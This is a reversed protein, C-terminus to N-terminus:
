NMYVLKLHQSQHAPWRRLQWICKNVSLHMRCYNCYHKSFIDFYAFLQSCGIFSLQVCMKICFYSIARLIEGICVQSSKSAYQCVQM